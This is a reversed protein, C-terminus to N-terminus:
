LFRGLRPCDDVGPEARFLPRGAAAGRGSFCAVPFLGRLGAPFLAFLPAPMAFFSLILEPLATSRSYDRRLEDRLPCTKLVFSSASHTIAPSGSGPRFFLLYLGPVSAKFSILLYWLEVSRRSKFSGKELSTQRRKVFGFKRSLQKCTRSIAMVKRGTPCSIRQCDCAM